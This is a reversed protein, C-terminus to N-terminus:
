ILNMFHMVQNLKLCEQLTFQDGFLEHGNSIFEEFSEVQPQYIIKTVLVMLRAACITNFIYCGFLMSIFGIRIANNNPAFMCPKSLFLALGVMVLKNWDCQPREFVQTYYVLCMLIMIGGFLIAVVIPDECLHLLNM